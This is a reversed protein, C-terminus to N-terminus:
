VEESALQATSTKVIKRHKWGELFRESAIFVIMVAQIIFVLEIPVDSTRSIIDAGTRLYALFLAAIPVLKPNFGALIAILVGDFGHGSLRQYQFRDFLGIQEIAGGMGAIAGGIIQCLIIYFSVNIGSYKAFHPNKGIIRISYGWKSKMLFLYGIIVTIIGLILGLHIRTVSFLRPLTATSAFLKSAPFGVTPDILVYSILYLGLFLSVFNLMISSVIPLAQFRVFLIAPIVGIMAGVLGGALIAFVPHIGAPLMFMIAVFSAAVGGLFFAGESALNAQGASFMISVGVGTFLLPIMLEIVNGMRRTTSLPGTIFDNMTKWPDSSSLLIVVMAILLALTIAVAVRIIKFRQEINKM